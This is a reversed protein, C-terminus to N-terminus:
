GSSSNQWEDRYWGDGHHIRHFPSLLYFIGDKIEGVQLLYGKKKVTKHSLSFSPIFIIKKKSILHWNSEGSFIHIGNDARSNMCQTVKPLDSGM